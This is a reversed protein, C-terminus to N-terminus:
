GGAVGASGAPPRAHLEEEHRDIQIVLGDPDRVTMSHGFAEDVVCLLPQRESADALLSLAALAVLFRDPSDGSELGFVVDLARRQPGALSGIRGLMPACLQHLAAFPLEMESEVGSARMVTFGSAEGVLSRLLATKGIGPEGRVVLVASRGGRVTAILWGLTELEAIRGFLREPQVTV